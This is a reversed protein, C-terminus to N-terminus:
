TKDKIFFRKTKLSLNPSLVRIKDLISHLAMKKHHVQQKKQSSAEKNSEVEEIEDVFVGIKRITKRLEKLVFTLQLGVVIMLVTTVSLVVTLLLQTTDM